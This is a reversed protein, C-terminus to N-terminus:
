LDRAVETVPSTQNTTKIYADKYEQYLAVVRNLRGIHTNPPACINNNCWEELALLAPKMEEIRAEILTNITELEAVRARLGLIEDAFWEPNDCVAVNGVQEAAKHLREDDAIMAGRVLKLEANLREIEAELTRVFRNSM